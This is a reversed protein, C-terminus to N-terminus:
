REVITTEVITGDPQTIKMLGPKAPVAFAMGALGALCSLFMVLKRM